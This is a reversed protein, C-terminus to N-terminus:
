ARRLGGALVARVFVLNGVLYRRWLRRPEAFLRYLWEFGINQVWVPAEKASGAAFDFAAGVGVCPIRLRQSLRTSVFDQKPTGLGVWVVDTGAPVRAACDDIYAETAEGYPPSYAGTVRLSPWDREIRSRLEHLVEPAAGILYCSLGAKELAALAALFYSPGRVREANPDMIRMLRAVPTGDPFNVGHNRLVMGYEDDGAALAVCYANALRVSVAERRSAAEVLWQVAAEFSTSAFPVDGVVVSPLGQRERAM